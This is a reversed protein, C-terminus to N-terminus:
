AARRHNPPSPLRRQQPGNNVTDMRNMKQMTSRILAAMFGGKIHPIWQLSHTQGGNRDIRGPAQGMKQPNDSPFIFSERPREGTKDQLSVSAGGSGINCLLLHIRNAQFEDQFNQRQKPSQGGYFGAKTKFIKGMELRAPTFNFFCVVSKGEDLCARVRLSVPKVLAMECKKWVKMRRGRRYNQVTERSYKDPHQKMYAETEAVERWEKEIAEAEPVELPLATITTGPQEGMDSKRVRCGRQPILISHLNDLLYMFRPNWKWRAPVEEEDLFCGNERMFRRWDSGGGHLGTIRGAIRLDLPSAAMTASAAIIPIGQMIAGGMMATTMSDNGKVKHAEDMIIIANSAERFKFFRGDFSGVQPRWGGRVAEYTGIFSPEANFTKFVENWGAVGVTPCFVIPKRGTSLAAATDMYSKGVGVDSLDM